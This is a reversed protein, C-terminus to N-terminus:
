SFSICTDNIVECLADIELNAEILNNRENTLQLSGGTYKFIHYLNIFIYIKNKNKNKDKWGNV